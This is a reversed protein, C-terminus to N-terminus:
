REAGLLFEISLGQTEVQTSHHSLESSIASSSSFGEGKPNHLHSHSHPPSPSLTLSSSSISSHIFSLYDDRNESLPAPPATTPTSPSLHLSNSSSSSSSSLNFTGRLEKQNHSSRPSSNHKLASLTPSQPRPFMTGGIQSLKGTTLGELWSEFEETSDRVSSLDRRLSERHDTLLGTHHASPPPIPPRSPFDYSQSPSLASSRSESLDSSLNSNFSLFSQSVLPPNRSATAQDLSSKQQQLQQRPSLTSRSPVFSSDLDQVDTGELTNSSTVIKFSPISLSSSTSSSSSSTVKMTREHSFLSSPPHSEPPHSRWSPRSPEEDDSSADTPLVHLGYKEEFSVAQPRQQQQPNPNQLSIVTSDSSDLPSVGFPLSAHTSTFTNTVTQQVITQEHEGLSGIFQDGVGLFLFSSNSTSQSSHSARSGSTSCIWQDKRSASGSASPLSHMSLLSEEFFINEEGEGDMLSGTASHLQMLQSHSSISLTNHAVHSSGLSERLFTLSDTEESGFGFSRSDRSARQSSPGENIRLSLKSSQQSSTEDVWQSPSPSSPPSPPISPVMPPYSPLQRHLSTSPSTLHTPSTEFFDNGFMSRTPTAINEIEHIIEALSLSHDRTDAPRHPSSYPSSTESIDRTGIPSIRLLDDLSLEGTDDLDDTAPRSSPSSHPSASGTKLQRPNHHEIFESHQYRERQYTHRQKMRARISQSQSQHQINDDSFNLLSGMDHGMSPFQQPEKEDERQDDPSPISFPSEFRSKQKESSGGSSQNLSSSGDLDHRAIVTSLDSFSQTTLSTNKPSSTTSYFSDDQVYHRRRSSSRARRTESTQLPLPSDTLEFSDFTSSVEVSPPTTSIFLRPPPPTATPSVSLGLTRQPSSWSRDLPDQSLDPLPLFHDVPPREEAERM